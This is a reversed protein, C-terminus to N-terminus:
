MREKKREGNTCSDNYCHHIKGSEEPQAFKVKLLRHFEITFLISHVGLKVDNFLI